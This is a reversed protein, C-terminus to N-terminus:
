QVLVLSAQGRDLFRLVILQGTKFRADRIPRITGNQADRSCVYRRVAQHDKM